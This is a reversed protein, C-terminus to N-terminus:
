FTYGIGFSWQKERTEDFPDIAGHPYGGHIDWHRNMMLTASMSGGATWPNNDKMRVFKTITADDETKGNVVYDLYGGLGFTLSSERGCRVM